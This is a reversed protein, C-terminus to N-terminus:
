KALGKDIVFYMTQFEELRRKGLVNEFVATYKDGRFIRARNDPNNIIDQIRVIADEKTIDKKWYVDIITKISKAVSNANTLIEEM